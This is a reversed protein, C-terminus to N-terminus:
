QSDIDLRELLASNLVVTISSLAMCAEAIVPHLLGLVAAPIAVCNYGFAWWLNQRIKRFIARSLRVAAPVARLDGRVITIDSSEIAIDTGTGIAIGVDAQVLAPADNIGDGVMAVKEGESQLRKIEEAKRDPMVGALVREIGVQEAIARATRENDGTIMAVELGMGKLAAIADAAGDKLKDAFGIIGIAVGDVAVISATQAKEEFKAATEVAAACDIGKEELMRRAGVLIDRGGVRARIGGTLAEFSEIGALTLGRTNAAEVVARALSHESGAEASAAWRLVEEESHGDLSAADIVQPRGVTLTGTKDFVVISVDKMAEVAEGSRILIGSRAGKSSGVMLATPTALGLACPCAIVLVAVAAFVALSLASAEPNVWPLAAARALARLPEPVMLWVAFTLASVILVVPVFRATVRDAFAQVPVRSDQASEVMAVVQALFTESGVRTARVRLLGQRNVTAGIVEDGKRKTVPMPEGTAMSEDVASEGDEVVGDAPIKEGPKVLMLDGPQVDALPVEIEGGDRLLRARPPQLEVLKRIASSASGRARTEIFRGTIHFAMIMAAVGAYNLVSLGLMHMPGTVFAALAGVSILVDMNASGRRVSQLASAYTALGPGALVPVTLAILAWEGAAGMHVGLMHGLMLLMVPATFAWVLALRLRARRLAVADDEETRSAASAERASYGLEEIAEILRRAPAISPDCKIFARSAAFNVSAESVGPLKRLAKEISCACSACHMGSVTLNITAVARPATGSPEPGPSSQADKSM